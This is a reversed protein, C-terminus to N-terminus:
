DLLSLSRAFLHYTVTFQPCFVFLSLVLWGGVSGSTSYRIERFVQARQNKIVLLFKSDEVDVELRNHM